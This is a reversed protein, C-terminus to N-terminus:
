FAMVRGAKGTSILFAIGDDFDVPVAVGSIIFELNRIVGAALALQFCEAIKLIGSRSGVLDVVTHIVSIHVHQRERASVTKHEGARNLCQLGGANSQVQRCPLERIGEGREVPHREGISHFTVHLAVTLKDFHRHCFRNLFENRCLSPCRSGPPVNFIQAM